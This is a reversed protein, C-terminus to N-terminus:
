ILEQPLRRGRRRLRLRDFPRWLPLLLHRRLGYTPAQAHAPRPMRVHRVGLSGPVCLNSDAPLGLLTEEYKEEDRAAADDQCGCFAGVRSLQGTVVQGRDEYPEKVVLSAHLRKVFM